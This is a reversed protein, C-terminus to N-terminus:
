APPVEFRGKWLQFGARREGLLLDAMALLIGILLILQFREDYQTAVKSEFQAKELGDLSKALDKLHDGGFSVHFFEGGGAKALDKLADGKVTTVVTQGDRTKKYSRLYGMGDRVPISGGKETGYAMTYITIGKKRLEEAAAIAGPEHDEGDSAVIVVRSVRVQDDVGVGGRNFAAEAARLACEFCTGQSSVALPSLSDLYMRIAAPDSTLPSLMAASGAFAVLGIRHGPSLEVFRGLEVKAQELRNPRVDEAMMSESVDVALIIEVGESRIEQRSEGMQPRAAAVFFCVLAGSRLVWKWFRKKPSVSRSLFPTLRPGFSKQLKRSSWRATAYALAWWLPLTLIGWLFQSSEFRFM